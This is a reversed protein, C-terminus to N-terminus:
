KECCNPRNRKYYGKYQQANDTRRVPSTVNLSRLRGIAESHTAPVSEQATPSSLEKLYPLERKLDACCSRQWFFEGFFLIKRQWGDFLLSRCLRKVSYISKLAYIIETQLEYPTISKPRHVVHGTCKEWDEHLLRGKNADYVPTGPIFYMSQLLIGQIDYKLVFDTLRKGLGKTHNDAGAIFLGRVRLGHRRINEISKIIEEVNSKKHYNVFAEDEIFEIGMAIETFGAKKLLSLMEDDFGVEYRAQVTFSYKIDSGIIANLVSVAWDRDAFFNDDSLWLTRSL